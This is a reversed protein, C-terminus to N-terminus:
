VKKKKLKPGSKKKPKKVTEKIDEKLQDVVDESIPQYDPCETCPNTCDSHNNNIEFVPVDKVLEVVDNSGSKKLLDNLENIASNIKYTIYKESGKDALMKFLNMLTGSILIILVAKWSLCGAWIVGGIGSIIAMILLSVKKFIKKKEM